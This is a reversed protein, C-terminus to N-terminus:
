GHLVEQLVWGLEDMASILVLEAESGVEACDQLVRYRELREEIVLRAESAQKQKM